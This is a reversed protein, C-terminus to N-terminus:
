RTPATTTGCRTKSCSRRRTRAGCRSTIPRWSRACPCTSGALDAASAQAEARAAAAANRLRGFLDVEWAFSLGAAFDDYPSTKHGLVGALPANASSRERAASADADLTPFEGSRANLAVARAEGLRAVAAQLDPNSRSLRQELEDLTPEDFAQWWDGRPAGDAPHAPMWDGAEVFHDVQPVQPRAYHPALSCAGISVAVCLVGAAAALRASGGSKRTGRQSRM